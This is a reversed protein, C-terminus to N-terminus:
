LVLLVGHASEGTAAAVSEVYIRIQAEYRERHASIERDTKFDVVTWTGTGSSDGSRFALDVVGEALTGDGLRLVVPTERRVGGRAAARAADRLLPHALAATVAITAADTEEQTAGVLRAQSRAAARVGSDPADLDVAALTAHVLTGFRTGSPRRADIPIQELAISAQPVAAVTAHGALSTVTSVRISAVRGQEQARRREAQWRGHARRGEEAVVGAEDAELIRQQRLGVEEQVDLKLAAPDWWVVTHDGVTARHRGPRVSQEAGFRCAAPRQYATDGGFPPCGPASAARRREEPAPYLAPNLVELWGGAMEENDDLDGLGPVVLLDRARTAAVYVLRVAEETERRLEEEAADHLEAPV